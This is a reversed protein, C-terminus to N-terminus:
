SSATPKRSQSKSKAESVIMMAFCVGIFIMMAEVLNVYFTNHFKNIILSMTIGFWSMIEASDKWFEYDLFM